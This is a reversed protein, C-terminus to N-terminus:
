FRLGAALETFGWKLTPASFNRVQTIHYGAELVPAWRASWDFGIALRTDHGVATGPRDTLFNM